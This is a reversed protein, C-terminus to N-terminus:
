NNTLTGAGLRTLEWMSEWVYDPRKPFQELEGITSSGTLVLSTGMGFHMGFRIDTELRDGIMLCREPRLGTWELVKSGFYFSPKGIIAAAERGSATEIARVISWTDPLM